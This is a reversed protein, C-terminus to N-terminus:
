SFTDCASAYPRLVGRGMNALDVRRTRKEQLAPFAFKSHGESCGNEEDGEERWEDSAVLWQYVIEM